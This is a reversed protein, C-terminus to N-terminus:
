LLRTVAALARPRGICMKLHANRSMQAAIEPGVVEAFDSLEESLSSESDDNMVQSHRQGKPEAEGDSDMLSDIQRSIAEEEAAGVVGEHGVHRPDAEFGSDRGGTAYGDILEGRERATEVVRDLGHTEMFHMVEKELEELTTALQNNERQLEKRERNWSREKARFKRENAELSACRAAWASLESQQQRIFEDREKISANLEDVYAMWENYSDDSTATASVGGNDEFALTAM